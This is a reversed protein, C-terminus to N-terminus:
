TGLSGVADCMGGGRARTDEAAVIVIKEHRLGSRVELVELSAAREGFADLIVPVRIPELVDDGGQILVRLGQIGIAVTVIELLDPLDLNRAEAPEGPVRQPNATVQDHPAERQVVTTRDVLAHQSVGREGRIAVLVLLDTSRLLRAGRRM